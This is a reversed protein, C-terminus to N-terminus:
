VFLRLNILLRRLNALLWDFFILAISFLCIISPTSDLTLKQMCNVISLFNVERSSICAHTRPSVSFNSNITITAFDSLVPLLLFTKTAIPYDINPLKVAPESPPSHLDRGNIFLVIEDAHVM